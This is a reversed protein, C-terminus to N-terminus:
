SEDQEMCAMVHEALPARVMDVGNSVSPWTCCAAAVVEVVDSVPIPFRLLDCFAQVGEEVLEGDLFFVKDFGEQDHHESQQFLLSGTVHKSPLRVRPNKGSLRRAVNRLEHVFQSTPQVPESEGWVAVSPGERAVPSGSGGDPSPTAAVLPFLAIASTAFTGSPQGTSLVLEHSKYQVVDTSAAFALAADTLAGECHRRFVYRHFRALHNVIARAEVVEKDSGGGPLAEQQAVLADYHGVKASAYAAQAHTRADRQVMPLGADAETWLSFDSGATPAAHSPECSSVRRLWVPAACTVGRSSRRAPARTVVLACHRRIGHLM